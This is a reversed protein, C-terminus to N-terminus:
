PLTGWVTTTDADYDNWVKNADWSLWSGTNVFQYLTLTPYSREGTQDTVFIQETVQMKNAVGDQNRQEVLDGLNYHTGYQYQSNQDIEGDFASVATNTALAERGMQTLYSTIQDSTPTGPLDGANVMLVKRDFGSITADVGLAYVVLSGQNSFVYAVNKAGTTITLQTTNQLNDLEPSFVVPPLDTQSTTRDSGSYVDFYLQSQDFNRLLRFGLNYNQGVNVLANYLSDPNQVLTIPDVPAIITDAPMISGPQLFPIADGSSLAADRCIHDFMTNMADKPPATITWSPDAVLSGMTNRVVRDSLVTGELSRGKLKLTSKGTKDTNDEVSEVTMVYMSSNIALQTGASLLSRTAPTSHIDLEFDGATYFRETWILSEFVDVVATRRLLSDLPYVEM